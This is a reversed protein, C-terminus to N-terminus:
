SPDTALMSSDFHSVLVRRDAPACPQLECFLSMESLSAHCVGFERLRNHSREQQKQQHAESVVATSLSFPLNFPRV